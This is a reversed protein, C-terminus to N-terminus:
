QEAPQSAGSALSELFEAPLNFSLAVTNGAGDLEFSDVMAQIEPRDTVKLRATALVGRLADRLSRASEEDRTEARLSGSVGGSLYGSVSLWEIASAHTSFAEPLTASRPLQDLRAVAWANTEGALEGIRKMLGANTTANRAGLYCDVVSRVADSHGTAIVGPALLALASTENGEERTIFGIGRYSQGVGGRGLAYSEIRAQDFRGQTIAAAETTGGRPFVGVLITDIDTELSIGTSEELRRRAQGEPGLGEVRHALGSEMFVQVDAWAVVAVDVPLYALEPVGGVGAARAAAREETSAVLSATVVAIAAGACALVRRPTKTTM